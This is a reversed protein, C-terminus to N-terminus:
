ANYNLLSSTVNLWIAANLLNQNETLFYGWWENNLKKGTIMRNRSIICVKQFRFSFLFFVISFHLDMSLRLSILKIESLIRSAVSLTKKRNIFQWKNLQILSNM